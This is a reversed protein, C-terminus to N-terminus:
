SCVVRRRRRHSCTHPRPLGGAHLPRRHHCCRPRRHCSQSTAAHAHRRDWASRIRGHQRRHTTGSRDHHAYSIQMQPSAPLEGESHLQRVAAWLAAKSITYTPWGKIAKHAAGSGVFLVRTPVRGEAVGPEILGRSRLAVTLNV